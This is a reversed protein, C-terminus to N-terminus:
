DNYHMIIMTYKMSMENMQIHMQLYILLMLRAWWDLIILISILNWICYLSESLIIHFSFKINSLLRWVVLHFKITCDNPMFSFCQMRERYIQFYSFLIFLHTEKRNRYISRSKWSIGRFTISHNTNTNPSRTYEIYKLDKHLTSTSYNQIHVKEHIIKLPIIWRYHDAGLRANRFFNNSAYHFLQSSM